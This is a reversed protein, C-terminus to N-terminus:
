DEATGKKSENNEYDFTLRNGNANKDVYPGCM